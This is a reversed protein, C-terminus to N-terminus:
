RAVEFRLQLSPVLGKDVIEAFDNMAMGASNTGSFLTGYTLTEMDKVKPIGALDCVFKTLQKMTMSSINKAMVFMQEQAEDVTESDFIEFVAEIDSYPPEGTRDEDGHDSSGDFVGFVDDLSNTDDEIGHVIYAIQDQMRLTSTIHQM